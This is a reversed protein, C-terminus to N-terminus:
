KSVDKATLAGSPCKAIQARIAAADAQDPDIWPTRNVDFVLPLGRVCEGAHICKGSDFSVELAKGKFEDM